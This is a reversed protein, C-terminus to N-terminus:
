APTWEREASSAKVYRPEWTDLDEVPATGPHLSLFHLLADATPEGLPPEAVRHGAAELIRRHRRAGDGAFIAGPPVGEGVVAVVDSAHPPLVTDLGAEGLRYCAAYVRDGRADFLVYRVRDNLAGLDALAGAALSSLGWLPVGLARAMGKATAAAVRVGTFSGPGEGVVIGGLEELDVGAEDLVEHVAPVLRSAHQGRQELSVRALVDAGLAVAVHGVMGSTDLALYFSEDSWRRASM